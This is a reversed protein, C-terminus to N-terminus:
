GYCGFSIVGGGSCQRPVAPTSVVFLPSADISGFSSRECASDVPQQISDRSEELNHSEAIKRGDTLGPM